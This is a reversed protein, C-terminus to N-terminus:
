FPLHWEKQAVDGNAADVKLPEGGLGCFERSARSVCQDCLVTHDTSQGINTGDIPVQCVDCAPVFVARDDHPCNADLWRGVAEHIQILQTVSPYITVDGIQLVPHGVVKFDYNQTECFIVDDQDAHAYSRIKM